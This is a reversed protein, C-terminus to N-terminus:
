KLLTIWGKEHYSKGDIGKYNCLWFYTGESVDEGDWKILPDSSEFVIKGWRNYIVTTMSIIGISNVPTFYDNIGDNNPTFVNGIILVVNCEDTLVIISDGSACNDVTVKAWYVGEDSVNITATTANNNWLYSANATTADLTLIADQCIITDAGLDVIPSANFDVVISDTSSCVEFFIIDDLAFDNGGELTNQNVISIEATTNTGANWLEAFQQWNCTTIGPSFPTGFNIGNISFQLLAPNASVVSTIWTSFQYDVDPQVDIVQSWIVSNADISGNVVMMNGSGNTHDGCQVFNTHVDSPSTTIAYTGADSLLGWTGGTGYIYDSTFLTDGLEFDGNQILNPENRTVQCSYIGEETVSLTPDTSNDQWLYYLGNAVSADLIITDNQCLSTDNGLDFNFPCQATLKFPMTWIICIVIILLYKKM